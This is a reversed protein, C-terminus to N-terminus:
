MLRGSQCREAQIRALGQEMLRPPVELEMAGDRTAPLMEAVYALGHQQARALLETVYLPENRDALHDDLLEADQKQQVLSLEAALMASYPHEGELHRGLKTVLSRAETTAGHESAYELVEAKQSPTYRKV